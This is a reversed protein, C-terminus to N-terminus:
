RRADRPCATGRARSYIAARHDEDTRGHACRPRVSRRSAAAGVARHGIRRGRDAAPYLPPRMDVADARGPSYRGTAILSRALRIYEIGDPQLAHPAQLWALRIALAAVIIVAAPITSRRM